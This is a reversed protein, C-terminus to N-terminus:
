ISKYEQLTTKFIHKNGNDGFLNYIGLDLLWTKVKEIYLKSNDLIMIDFEEGM